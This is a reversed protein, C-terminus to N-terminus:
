VMATRKEQIFQIHHPIHNTISSLLQEMTM